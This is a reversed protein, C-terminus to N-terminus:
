QAAGLAGLPASAAMVGLSEALSFMSKALDGRKASDVYAATTDGGTIQQVLKEQDEKSMEGFSLLRPISTLGKTFKYALGGGFSGRSEEIVYNMGISQAISKQATDVVKLNDAVLKADAALDANAQDVVAQYEEMSMEGSRVKAALANIEAQAQQQKTKLEVASKQVQNYFDGVMKIDRDDRRIASYVAEPNTSKNIRAMEYADRFQEAKAKVYQEEAKQIPKEFKQTIQGEVKKGQEAQKVLAMPDPQELPNDLFKQTRNMLGEAAMKNSAVDIEKQKQSQISDLEKSAQNIAGKSNIRIFDKLNQAEEKDGGYTWNDLRIDMVAGNPAKVTMMDSMGGKATFSFGPFTQKLKEAVAEDSSIGLFMHKLSVDDQSILNPTVVKNLNTELEMSRKTQNAVQAKKNADVYGVSQKFQRNLATISTENTLTTWDTQGPQRRQWTGNKIRYENKEKGPYGFYIKEQESTSGEKGFHKNLAAVRGVDTIPKFTSPGKDLNPQPTSMVAGSATIERKVAAPKQTYVEEYWAGNQFKYRKGPKGPYGTYINSEPKQKPQPEGQPKTKSTYGSSSKESSLDVDAIDKKKVKSIFADRSIDDAYTKDMSSIWDYMKNAYSENTMKSAFADYSVDSKYTPDQTSIWGYLDKLYKENM